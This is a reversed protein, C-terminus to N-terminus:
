DPVKTKVDVVKLVMKEENLKMVRFVLRYEYKRDWLMTENDQKGAKGYGSTQIILQNDILDWKGEFDIDYYRDQFGFNTQFNFLGDKFSYHDGFKNPEPRDFEIEDGVEFNLMGPKRMQDFFSRNKVTRWTQGLLNLSDIASPSKQEYELHKQGKSVFTVNFLQSNGKVTTPLKAIGECDTKIVYVSDKEYVPTRNTCVCFGRTSDFITDGEIFFEAKTLGHSATSFNYKNGEFDAYYLTKDYLHNDREDIEILNNKVRCGRTSLTVRDKFFIEGSAKALMLLLDDKLLYVDDGCYTCGTYEPPFVEKGMKDILGIRSGNQVRRLPQNAFSYRDIYGYAESLQNGESDFLFTGLSETAVMRDEGKSADIRIYKTPLIAEGKRNIVGYGKGEAIKFANASLVELFQYEFPLVTKGKRNIAGWKDNLKVAAFGSEDFPKIEQYKPKIVLKGNLNMFGFLQNEKMQTVPMMGNKFTLSRRDYRNIENYYRYKKLKFKKSIPKENVDFLQWKGKNLVLFRQENWYLVREYGKDFIEKGSRDFYHVKDGFDPHDIAQIFDDRFRIDGRYKKPLITDLALDLVGARTEKVGKLIVFGEEIQFNKDINGELMENGEFDLLYTNAMMIDVPRSKKTYYIFAQYRYKDQYPVKKLRSYYPPLIFNGLSDIVGQRRKTKQSRGYGSTVKVEVIARGFEDFLEADNYVPPIKLQFKSNAYGFKGDIRVPILDPIQTMIQGYGIFFFILLAQHKLTSKTKM